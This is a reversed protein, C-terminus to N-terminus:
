RRGVRVDGPLVHKRRQVVYMRFAFADLQKKTFFFLNRDHFLLCKRFKKKFFVSGNAKREIGTAGWAILTLMADNRGESAAGHIPQESIFRCSALNFRVSLKSIFIIM